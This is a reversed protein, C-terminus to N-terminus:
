TLVNIFYRLYRLHIKDSIITHTIITKTITASCINWGMMSMNIDKSSGGLYGAGLVITPVDAAEWFSIM